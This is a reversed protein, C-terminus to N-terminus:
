VQVFQVSGGTVGAATGSLLYVLWPVTGDLCPGGGDAPGFSDPINAALARLTRSLRRYLVLSIAGSTLTAALQFATPVRVGYDGAALPFPVFTGVEATAPISITSTAGANGDSDTYTLTANVPAGNGTATVVELAAMVGVGNTSGNADRPPPTVAAIAQSSTLTVSLGSNEWLRDALFAGAVNAAAAFDMANLYVSKGAAAAPFPVQGSRSTLPTGNVGASPASGAGPNGAVYLSSHYGGAAEATFAAKFLDTVALRGNLLADIDGVGM